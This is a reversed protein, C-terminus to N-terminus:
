NGDGVGWQFRMAEIQSVLEFFSKGSSHTVLEAMVQLGQQFAPTGSADGTHFVLRTIGAMRAALLQLLTMLIRNGGYAGCGWFGTHIVVDPPTSRERSSELLAAKFGSYATILIYCIESLRYPGHGGVPAEIALINSITPPVIAKTAQRIAEPTARAFHNGYLGFPRGEAPNPNTAVQCRREVGMVLIPTASGNEVTLPQITTKLLAERLAALAPHEAVQMEDQAFLPGGYFAFAEHHAFNLYWEVANSNQPIPEYGFYDARHEVQIPATDKITCASIDMEQWRSFTIMGSHTTGPPCAIRYVLQKNPHVLRPPHELFLQATNFTQRSLPTPPTSMLLVIGDPQWTTVSGQEEIQDM